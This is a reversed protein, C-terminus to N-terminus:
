TLMDIIFYIFTWDAQSVLDRQVLYSFIPYHKSVHQNTISLYMTILLVHICICYCLSLFYKSVHHYPSWHYKSVPHNNISLYMSILLVKIFLSWYYNSVPYGFISLYLTILLVILCLSLFYKSVPHNTISLCM